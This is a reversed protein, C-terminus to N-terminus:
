APASHRVVVWIRLTKVVFQAKSLTGAELLRGLGRIDRCVRWNGRHGTKRSSAKGPFSLKRQLWFGVIM